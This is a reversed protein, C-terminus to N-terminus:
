VPAVAPLVAVAVVRDRPVPRSGFNRGIRGLWRSQLVLFRIRVSVRQRVFHLRVARM